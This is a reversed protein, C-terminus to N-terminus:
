IMCEAADKCEDGPILMQEMKKLRLKRRKEIYERVRDDESRPQAQDRQPTRRLKVGCDDMEGCRMRSKIRGELIAKLRQRDRHSARSSAADNRQGPRVRMPSSADFLEGAHRRKFFVQPVPRTRQQAALRPMRVKNLKSSVKVHKHTPRWVQDIDRPPGASAATALLLVGALASLGIIARM